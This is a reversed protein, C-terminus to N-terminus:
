KSPRSPIKRPKTIPAKPVSPAKPAVPKEPASKLAERRKAAEERVLAVVAKKTQADKAYLTAVERLLQQEQQDLAKISKASLREDFGTATTREALSRDFQTDVKVDRAFKADAALPKTLPALKERVSANVKPRQVTPRPKSLKPKQLSPKLLRELARRNADSPARSLEVAADAIQKARRRRDAQSEKKARLQELHPALHEDFEALSRAMVQETRREIRELARAAAVLTGVATLPDATSVLPAILGTLPAIFTAQFTSNLASIQRRRKTNAKVLEASSELQSAASERELQALEQKAQDLTQQVASSASEPTAASDARQRDGRVSQHASVSQEHVRELTGKADQNMSGLTADMREKGSDRSRKVRDTFEQIRERAQEVGCSAGATAVAAACRWFGSCCRALAPDSLALVALFAAITSSTTANRFM